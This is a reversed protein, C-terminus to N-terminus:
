SAGEESSSVPKGNVWLPTLKAQPQKKGRQMWEYVRKVALFDDLNCQSEVETVKGKESVSVVKGRPVAPVLGMEYLAHAYSTVQLKHTEYVAGKKNSKFDVIAGTGLPGGFDTGEQYEVLDTTGAYSNRLSFVQLESALISYGTIAAREQFWDWLGKVYGHQDEPVHAKAPPHGHKVIYEAIHHIDSGRGAATTLQRDPRHDTKNKVLEYTEDVVIEFDRSDDPPPLEDNMILELVGAVGIKHGWWELGGKAVVKLITTVSPLYIPVGRPRGTEVDVIQLSYHTGDGAAREAM